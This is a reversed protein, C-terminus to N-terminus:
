ACYKELRRFVIDRHGVLHEYYDVVEDTAAAVASLAASQYGLLMGLCMVDQAVLNNLLFRSRPWSLDVKARPQM